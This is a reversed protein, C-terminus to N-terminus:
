CDLEAFILRSNWISLIHHRVSDRRSAADRVMTKDAKRQFEAPQYLFLNAGPMRFVGPAVSTLQESPLEAAGPM